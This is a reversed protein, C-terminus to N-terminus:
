LKSAAHLVVPPRALGAVIPHVWSRPAVDALIASLPTPGQIGVGPTRVAVVSRTYAKRPLGIFRVSKIDACARADALSLRFAGAKAVHGAAEVARGHTRALVLARSRDSLCLVTVPGPATPADDDSCLAALPEDDIADLPDAIDDPKGYSALTQLGSEQGDAIGKIAGADRRVCTPRFGCHVTCPMGIAPCLEMPELHSCPAAAIPEATVSDAACPASADLETVVPAAWELLTEEIVAPAEYDWHPLEIRLLPVVAPQAMGRAAPRYPQRAPVWEVARPRVGHACPQWDVRTDVDGGPIILGDRSALWLAYEVAKADARSDGRQPATSPTFRKSATLARKHWGPKLKPEAAGPILTIQFPKSM